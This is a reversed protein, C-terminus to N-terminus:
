QNQPNEKGNIIGELYEPTLVTHRVDLKINNLDLPTLKKASPVIGGDTVADNKGTNNGINDSNMEM